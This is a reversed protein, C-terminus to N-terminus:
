QYIIMIVNLNFISFSDFHLHKDNHMNNISSYSVVGYVLFINDTVIHFNFLVMHGHNM